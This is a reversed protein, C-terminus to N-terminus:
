ASRSRATSSVSPSAPDAQRWCSRQFASRGSRFDGPAISGFHRGALTVELFRADCDVTQVLVDGPVVTEGVPGSQKWIVGASPSTPVFIEREAILQQEVAIQGDLAARESATRRRETALTAISLEIGDIRQQSYPVDNLGDQIFVGAEVAAIEIDVRKVRVSLRSVAAVAQSRAATDADVRMTTAHGHRVLSEARELTVAANDRSAKASNLAAEAERTEVALRALLRERFNRIRTSMIESLATLKAIETDISALSEDLLALRALLQALYRLNREDVGVTVLTTGFVIGTGVSPSRHTIHGEMPSLVTNLPANVVAQSSAYSTAYPATAWIVAVALVITAMIRMNRVSFRM